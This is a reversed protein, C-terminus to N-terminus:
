VSASLVQASLATGDLPNGEGAKGMAAPLVEKVSKAADSARLLSQGGPGLPALMRALTEPESVNLQAPLAVSGDAIATLADGRERFMSLSNSADDVARVLRGFSSSARLADDEVAVSKGSALASSQSGKINTAYPKLNNELSASNIFALAKLLELNQTKFTELLQGSDAKPNKRGILESQVKLGESINSVLPGLEKLYGSRPNSGYEEPRLRGLVNTSGSAANSEIRSRASAVLENLAAGATGNEGAKIDTLRQSISLLTKDFEVRKVRESASDLASVLGGLGGVTAGIATGLPGFISGVL